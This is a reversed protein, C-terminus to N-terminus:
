ESAVRRNVYDNLLFAVTGPLRLTNAQEVRDPTYHGADHLCNLTGIVAGNVVIPLNLCSECGLSQILEFDPFVAAIEDISNAVFTKQKIQVHDFWANQEIPKEGKTPYADPHNTYNRYAVGRENDIQMLTFLKVGITTDVLTELAEFVHQPQGKLAIAQTLDTMPKGGTQRTVGARCRRSRSGLRNFSAHLTISSKYFLVDTQGMEMLTGSQFVAVRDAVNRVVALDHTIFIYTLGHSKRLDNLLRLVRAQVLVDLASTPEDLVLLQPDCALARAISIRQRQGGSFAAPARKRMASDLGVAELARDVARWRDHKLGIDFTDLGLRVSAGISRKPNLSSLPNQQVLQIARRQETSRKSTLTSGNFYINGAGPTHIGLIMNALTSKGSGSEGVIALCEGAEVDFSVESVATVTRTSTVFTKSVNKLSLLTM